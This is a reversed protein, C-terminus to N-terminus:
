RSGSPLRDSQMIQARSVTMMLKNPHARPRTRCPSARGKCLSSRKARPKMEVVPEEVGHEISSELIALAVAAEHATAYLQTSRKKGATYGQFMDRKRGQGGRVRKYGRKGGLPLRLAGFPESVIEGSM